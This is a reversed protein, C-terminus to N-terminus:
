ISIWKTKPFCQNISGSCLECGMLPDQARLIYETSRQTTRNFSLILVPFPFTFSHFFILTSVKKTKKEGLTSEVQSLFYFAPLGNPLHYKSASCYLLSCSLLFHPFRMFPTNQAHYKQLYGPNTEVSSICSICGLSVATSTNTQQSRGRRPVTTSIELEEM